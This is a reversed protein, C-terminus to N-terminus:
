GDHGIRRIHFAKKRLDHLGEARSSEKRSTQLGLLVRVIAKSARKVYQNSHPWVLNSVGLVDGLTKKSQWPCKRGLVLDLTSLIINKRILSPCSTTTTSSVVKTWTFLLLCRGISGNRTVKSSAGEIHFEVHNHSQIIAEEFLSAGLELKLLYSLWTLTRRM